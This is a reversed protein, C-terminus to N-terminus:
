KQGAACLPKKQLFFQRVTYTQGFNDFIWIGWHM